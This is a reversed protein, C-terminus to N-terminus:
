NLKRNAAAGFITLGITALTTYVAPKEVFHVVSSAAHEIGHWVSGFFGGGAVTELEEISLEGSVADNKSLNMEHRRNIICIM